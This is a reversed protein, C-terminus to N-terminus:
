RKKLRTCVEEAPAEDLRATKRKITQWGLTRRRVLSYRAQFGAKQLGQVLAVNSAAGYTWPKKGQERIREALRSIMEPECTACRASVSPACEFIVVCDASPADLKANLEPLRFRDFASVWGFGLFSGGADVFGFGEASRARLRSASRLLYALTAKDNAFQSAASALQNLDLPELKAVGPDPVVGGVSEFCLVEEESWFFAATQKMRRRLTVALGERGVSERLKRVWMVAARITQELWPSRKIIEAAGHRLIEGAHRAVSSSLTVYLTERTQNAFREKYEEAGLGLDVTTVDPDDASEEILKALLCFGPSYKELDSDFTPQYWFWVGDFQFGYNWALSHEGSMMRTLVLWGSESLLKALEELFQRRERQVMNSIRGTGLFRAVHAQMFQSLIPSVEGWSRAHDLRVPAERGMANLSRRLMKKGPLVPKNECPQRELKSLSVQACIYATRAFCRYGSQHSANRLAAVTSSDAPLNTLTLDDIGQKRLEALVAEVFAPKHEPLSLFDCYDGTSACLFSVRSGGVDVGLATVGCLFDGEDYALFLLTQLRALYAKQVALSWEYTYFVQPKEVRGVLVNWQQRLNADEPIEKLLVLRLTRIV